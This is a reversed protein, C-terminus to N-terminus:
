PGHAHLPRRDAVADPFRDPLDGPRRPAPSLLLVGAPRGPQQRLRQQRDIEQDRELTPSFPTAAYARWTNTSCLFAIPARPRAAAKKVIFVTHYLREEGDVAFASRPRRLHGIPRGRAAPYEHSAKWRCDFLDDSALRLGHGADLTRPVPDTTASGRSTPM